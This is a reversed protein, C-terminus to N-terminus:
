VGNTNSKQRRRPSQLKEHAVKHSHSGLGGLGVHVGPVQGDDPGGIEEPPYISQNPIYISSIFVWANHFCSEITAERSPRSLIFM